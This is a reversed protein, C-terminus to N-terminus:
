SIFHIFFLSTALLLLVFAFSSCIIIPLYKTLKINIVAEQPNIPNYLVEISDGIKFDFSGVSIKSKLIYEASDVQYKVTPFRRGNYDTTTGGYVLGIVIGTTKTYTRIIMDHKISSKKQLLIGIGFLIIGCILSLYGFFIFMTIGRM